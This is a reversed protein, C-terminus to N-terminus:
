LQGKQEGQVRGKARRSKKERRAEEVQVERDVAVSSRPPSYYRRARWGELGSQGVVWRLRLTAGWLRVGRRYM